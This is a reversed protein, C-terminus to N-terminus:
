DYADENLPEIVTINKDSCIEKLIQIAEKLEKKGRASITILATSPANLKPMTIHMEVVEAFGSEDIRNVTDSLDTHIIHGILLVSATAKLRVENFSRIYIGSERIRGIVEDFRDSDIDIVFEVPIRKLPSIRHRDHVISIINGGLRSIPEIVRLLQGPKDELEVVLTVIM